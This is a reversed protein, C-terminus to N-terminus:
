DAMLSSAFSSHHNPETRSHRRPKSRLIQQPREQIQSICSQNPPNTSADASTNPFPLTPVEYLATNSSPVVHHHLPQFVHNDGLSLKLNLHFPQPLDVM